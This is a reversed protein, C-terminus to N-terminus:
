LRDFACCLIKQDPSAAVSLSTQLLQGVLQDHPEFKTTGPNLKQVPLWIVPMVVYSM